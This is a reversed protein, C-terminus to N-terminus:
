LLHFHGLNWFPPLGLHSHLDSLQYQHPLSGPRLLVEMRYECTIRYEYNLHTIPIMVSKLAPYFSSWIQKPFSSQCGHPPHRLLVQSSPILKYANAIYDIWSIFFVQVLSPATTPLLYIQSICQFYFLSVSPYFLSWLHTGSKPPTSPVCSSLCNSFPVPSIFWIVKIKSSRLESVELVNLLIAGFASYVGPSHYDQLYTM